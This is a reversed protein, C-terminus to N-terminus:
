PHGQAAHISALTMVGVVDDVSSGRSLDSITRTFGQLFPGYADGGAFRQVAKYAINGSNLDPFILVNASGAVDSAGPVKRAAVAPVIAADLQLEGDVLLGPQRERAMAAAGRIRLISPDESSGRTSYSLLAVRPQWGLLAHTTQASVIAIDALAAADPSVVVGCDAFVVLEGQAGAYGPIRMLFVSSPTTVGAQLGVFTLGALIVEETTHVAGAVMADVRGVDLLMAAATLPKKLRRLAGKVSHEPHRQHVEAALDLDESVQAIDLIPLDSLDIAAQAAAQNIADPDGLLVPHALGQARAAAAAALITPDTAEPLIIRQPSTRARDALPQPIRASM